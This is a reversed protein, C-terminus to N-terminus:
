HFPDIWAALKTLHEVKLTINHRLLHMAMAEAKGQGRDFCQAMRGSGHLFEYFLHHISIQTVHAQM